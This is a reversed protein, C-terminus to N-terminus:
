AGGAFVDIGASAKEGRTFWRYGLNGGTVAILAATLLLTTLARLVPTPAARRFQSVSYDTM